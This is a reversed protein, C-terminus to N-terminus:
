KLTKVITNEGSCYTLFLEPTGVIELLTSLTVDYEYYVKLRMIKSQAVKLNADSVATSTAFGENFAKETSRSYEEALELTSNLEEIQELNMNLQQYLKIIYAEINNHAVEEAKLVQQELAKTAKVNKNRAFGQFISWNLGVGVMWDPTYDSLQYDAINYTGMAAITPMYEAKEARDKISVLEKKSEIQKLQPNSEYSKTIWYDVPHLDKNVFLNNAPLLSAISDTALTAKLGSQIIEINRQAKKLDREAENRVVSAHLLEVKAIQGEDFLKQADNYHKDMADFMQTYVEVAQTALALGYYRTVLETLLEGKIQRLQEQGIAVEVGAAKNAASIKGGTYIPWVFDATVTAFKDEQITQDWDASALEDEAALLQNRIYTTSQADSLTVTESYPVGSFNGYNGLVDYLQTIATGVDTLDLHIEDSMMVAKAGLSVKPMYLGKKAAKEYEKQKIEQQARQLAPNNTLMMDVASPFTLLITDNQGMAGVICALVLMLTGILKQIKM